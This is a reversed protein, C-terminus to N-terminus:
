RSKTAFLEARLMELRQGTVVGVTGKSVLRVLVELRGDDLLRSVVVRAPGLVEFRAKGSKRQVICFAEDGSKLAVAAVVSPATNVVDGGRTCVNARPRPPPRPRPPAGRDRASQTCRPRRRRRRPRM